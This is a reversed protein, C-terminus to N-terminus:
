AVPEDDSFVSPDIGIQTLWNDIDGCQVLFELAPFEAADVYLTDTEADYHPLDNTAGGGPDQGGTGGSAGGAAEDRGALVGEQWVQGIYGTTADDYGWSSFDPAQPQDSGPNQAGYEHGQQWATGYPENGSYPNTM